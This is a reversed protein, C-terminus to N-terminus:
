VRVSETAFAAAVPEQFFNLTFAGIAAIVVAAICAIVFSRM